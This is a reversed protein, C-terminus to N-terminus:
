NIISPTLGQPIKELYSERIKSIYNQKAFQNDKLGSVGMEFLSPNLEQLNHDGWILIEIITPLLDLGSKTLTYVFSKKNGKLQNKQIIKINELQNLRNSLINTSIKEPSSSFEKFTRKHFYFMDRIILLSWKDGILDLSSSVPCGSRFQKQNIDSM